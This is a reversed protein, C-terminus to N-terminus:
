KLLSILRTPAARLVLYALIVGADDTPTQDTRDVEVNISEVVIQYAELYNDLVKQPVQASEM